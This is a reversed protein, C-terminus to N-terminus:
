PYADIQLSDLNFFNQFFFLFPPFVSVLNVFKQLFFSFSLCVLSFLLLQLSVQVEQCAQLLVKTCLVTHSVDQCVSSLDQVVCM